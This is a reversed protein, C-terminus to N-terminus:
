SLLTAATAVFVVDFLGVVEDPRHEELVYFTLSFVVIVITIVTVLGDVSRSSDDVQRKLQRLVWAALLALVLVTAVSRYATSRHGDLRVPVLLYLLLILGITGVLHLRRARTM